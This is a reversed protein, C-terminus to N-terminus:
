PFVPMLALLRDRVQVALATPAGDLLDVSEFPDSELDDLEDGLREVLKWRRTRIARSPPTM